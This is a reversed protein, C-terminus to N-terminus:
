GLCGVSEWVWPEMVHLLALLQMGMTRFDRGREQFYRQVIAVAGARTQSETTPKQYIVTRCRYFFHCSVEGYPM